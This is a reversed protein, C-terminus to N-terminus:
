EASWPKCMAEAPSFPLPADTVITALFRSHRADEEGATLKKIAAPKAEIDPLKAYLEEISSNLALNNSHVLLLAVARELKCVVARHWKNKTTALGDIREIWELRQAYVETLVLLCALVVVRCELYIIHPGYAVLM